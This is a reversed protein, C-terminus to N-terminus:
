HTCFSYSTKVSYLLIFLFLIFHFLSPSPTCNPRSGINCSHFDIKLPFLFALNNIETKSRCGNFQTYNTNKRHKKLTLHHSTLGIHPSEGIFRQTCLPLKLCHTSLWSIIPTVHQWEEGWVKLFIRYVFTRFCAASVFLFHPSKTEWSNCSSKSTTLAPLM